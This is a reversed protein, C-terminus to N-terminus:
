LSVQLELLMLTFFPIAAMWGDIRDLVGGHGPLLHSSDKIGRERKLMSEFLDGLVSAAAVLMMTVIFGLAAAVSLQLYASVCFALLASALLGGWFGAWTKGPSVQVALKKKGFRKGIFYAGSDACVVSVIVLLVLEGHPAVNKLLLLGMWAPLLLWVGVFALVMRKNWSKKRPYVCVCFLALLWGICALSFFVRMWASDLWAQPKFFFSCSMLLLM